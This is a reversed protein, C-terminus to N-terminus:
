IPGEVRQCEIRGLSIHLQQQKFLESKVEKLMLSRTNWPISNRNGSRVGTLLGDIKRLEVALLFIFVGGGGGGGGASMISVTGNERHRLLFVFGSEAM